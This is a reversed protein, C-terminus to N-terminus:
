RSPNSQWPTEIGLPKIKFLENNLTILDGRLQELVVRSPWSLDHVELLAVSARMECCLDILQCRHSEFDKEM